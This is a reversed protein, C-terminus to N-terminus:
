EPDCPGDCPHIVVGGPKLFADLQRVAAPLQSVSGHVGNDDPPIDSIEYFSLDLGFDYVTMGSPSSEETLAPIGWVDLASPQTMGVGLTIGHVFSAVNPVQNDGLGTQVLVQRDPPSNDLPRELVFPAYVAPDIRDFHRHVQAAFKQQNLADDTIFQM